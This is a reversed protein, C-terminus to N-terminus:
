KFVGKWEVALTVSAADTQNKGIYDEKEFNINLVNADSLLQLKEPWEVILAGESLAEEFNLANIEEENKLRYLDAHFINFKDFFIHM